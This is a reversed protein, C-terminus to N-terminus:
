TSVHLGPDTITMPDFEFEDWAAAAESRYAELVSELYNIRRRSRLEQLEYSNAVSWVARREAVAWAVVWTVLIVLGLVVIEVSTDFTM